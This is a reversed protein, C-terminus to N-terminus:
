GIYDAFEGLWPEANLQEMTEAMTIRGYIKRTDLYQGINKKRANDSFIVYEYRQSGDDYSMNKLVEKRILYTCHIVPVEVLGKIQRHLLQHYLPCEKYYGNEDIDAHYNSYWTSARLLPGVIPLNTKFLAEITEPFIFNDCDAVFYHSDHFRAWTMSTQRIKGLVKFREANWEHQGFREVREPLDTKDFYVEKYRSRNRALWNEIIEITNDNCNNVRIYLNTRAAPWTQCEICALYIPM